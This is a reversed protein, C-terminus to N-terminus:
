ETRQLFYMLERKDSFKPIFDVFTPHKPEQYNKYWRNYAVSPIRIIVPNKKNQILNHVFMKERVLNLHEALDRSTRLVVELRIYNDPALELFRDRDAQSPNTNDIIVSKGKEIASRTSALCKPLTGLNDQNIIIFRNPHEAVIRKGFSSKGSGPPGILIIIYLRDPELPPLSSLRTEDISTLFQAPDFGKWSSKGSRSGTFYETENFFATRQSPKLQPYLFKMLSYMNFAFKRDVDSFDGPRGAADGVYFMRDPPNPGLIFHEAISTNPKRWYDKATPIFVTIPINLETLMKGIKELIQTEIQKGSSIGAQNTIIYLKHDKSLARLRDPVNPFRWEWDDKDTPFTEGSKTKILTGDMDFMGIKTKPNKQDDDLNYDIRILTPYPRTVEM